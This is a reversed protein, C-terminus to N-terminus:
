TAEREELRGDMVATMGSLGRVISLQDMSPATAGALKQM